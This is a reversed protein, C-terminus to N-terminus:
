KRRLIQFCSQKKLTRNSVEFFLEITTAKIGGHFDIGYLSFLEILKSKIEKKTYISGVCFTTNIVNQFELKSIGAIYRKHSMEDKIKKQSYKLEVIRDAGLMEYAEVILPDYKYLIDRFDRLLDSESNDVDSYLLKLQDLTTRHKDKLGKSNRERQIKEIDGLIFKHGSFNIEFRGRDTYAKMLLDKCNYYSRMLKDEVFNDMDFYRKKGEEDIFKSFPIAALADHYACKYTHDTTTIYLTYLTNYIEEMVKLSYQLEHRTQVLIEKNLNTIHTVSEVGNRFRGIIQIVDTQPDVMSHEAYYIDSIIVVNVETDIDMDLASYFRSTFFNYKKIKNVDWDEYAHKVNKNEMLKGVSKPSCFVATEYNIGLQKILAEITNTSNIFFCVKKDSNGEIEKLVIRVSDLISNTTVLYMKQCYDYTPEICLEEFGQEVFRPDSPLIPTASVMAKNKFRFFDNIPLLINTRFGVDQITKHCEDLLIFCDNYIDKDLELFAEKIKWFSEPTTLLKYNEKKKLLYKVIDDASTGECVAFTGKHKKCKGNIVPVHPEIIISNRQTTLECHTAGIGTITKSLIVNTPIMGNELINSLYLGKSISLIRKNM